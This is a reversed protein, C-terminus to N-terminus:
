KIKPIHSPVQELGTQHEGFLFSIVNIEPYESLNLQFHHQLSMNRNVKIPVTRGIWKTDQPSVVDFYVFIAGDMFSKKTSTVHGERVRCSVDPPDPLQSPESQFTVIFLDIEFQFCSVFAVPYKCIMCDHLHDM